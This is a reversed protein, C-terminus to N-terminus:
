SNETDPEDTKQAPSPSKTPIPRTKANSEAGPVSRAAAKAAKYAKLLLELEKVRKEATEARIVAEQESKKALEIYQTVNKLAEDAATQAREAANEAKQADELKKQQELLAEEEAKLRAAEEAKRKRLALAEEPSLSVLDEDDEDLEPFEFSIEDYNVEKEETDNEALEDTVDVYGDATKRLRIGRGYEDDIIREEM